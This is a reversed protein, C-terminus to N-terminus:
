AHTGRGRPCSCVPGAPNVNMFAVFMYIYLMSFRCSVHVRTLQKHAESSDSFSMCAHGQPCSCVPGAPNVNMSKFAVFMYLRAAHRHMCQMDSRMMCDM